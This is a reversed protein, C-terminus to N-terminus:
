EKEAQTRTTTPKKRVEGKEWLQKFRERQEDHDKKQREETEVEGNVERTAWLEIGSNPHFRYHEGHRELVLEDVLTEIHKRVDRV